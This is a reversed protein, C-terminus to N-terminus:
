IQPIERQRFRFNQLCWLDSYANLNFLKSSIAVTRRRRKVLDERLHLRQRAFKIPLISTSSFPLSVRLNVTSRRLKRCVIGKRYAQQHMTPSATPSHSSPAQHQALPHSSSGRVYYSVCGYQQTAMERRKM